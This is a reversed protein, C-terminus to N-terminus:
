HSVPNKGRLFLNNRSLSSDPHLGSKKISGPISKQYDVSLDRWEDFVPSYSKLQLYRQVLEIPKM